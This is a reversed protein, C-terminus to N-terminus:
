RAAYVEPALSSLARLTFVTFAAEALAVPGQTVAFIAGFRLFSSFIGAHPDPFALSLQLSTVSYTALSAVLTAAFVAVSTSCWRRLLRHVLWFSCPGAVGLSFLNAGLTTIGGHALLVAQFLLVILALAVTVSPGFGLAALAVGTPHSSSGGVSPLKVATLAFLFAGSVALMLRREPDSRLVATTRRFSQIAFPTSIATWAAAHAVPLFGEAIHM